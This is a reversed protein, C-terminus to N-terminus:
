NLSVFFDGNGEGMSVFSRAFQKIFFVTEMSPEENISSEKKVESMDEVDTENLTFTDVM